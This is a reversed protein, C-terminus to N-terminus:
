TCTILGGVSSSIQPGSHHRIRREIVHLISELLPRRFAAGIVWRAM